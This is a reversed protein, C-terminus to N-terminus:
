PLVLVPRFSHTFSAKGNSGTFYFISSSDGGNCHGGRSFFTNHHCPFVSHGEYWSTGGISRSSTEYVADGFRSANKEYNPQNDDTVGKEYVDKMYNQTNNSVLSSGYNTLSDDGNNVYGAVYEWAGGNMDYIGYVNGTTSAEQGKTSTYDNTTGIDILANPNEGSSGTIYNGSNNIWIEKNKGYKSQALYICAGWESNKMLHSNLRTNYDRCKEFVASITINRWSNVGPQIKIVGSTGGTYNQYDEANAGADSQSAEFKAVWIGAKEGNYNFAPHVVYNDGVRVADAKETGEVVNGSTDVIGRSDSYGTVTRGDNALYEIKYAFRPIWVWMSGDSTKANAWKKLSTSYDYWDEDEITTTIWNSGNWKIPTMESGLKPTQVKSIVNNNTDIFKIDINGVNSRNIEAKIVKSISEKKNGVKDITLVHLYYNGIKTPTLTIIESNNKFTNTYKSEDEIGIANATTNLEWKCKGIDVGSENDVHTVTATITEGIQTSTTSLSITAARPTTGDKITVSEEQGHNIGDTLRAYVADNHNLGTVSEGTQWGDADIGNIQWEIYLNSAVNEGKTLTISATHSNPDWDPESAKIVGEKLGEGAGIIGETTLEVVKQSEGNENKAVVKLEYITESELGTVEATKEEVNEKIAKYSEEPEDLKKYYYSLTLNEGERIVTVEINISSSTRGTEKIEQIYPLLANDKGIYEVEADGNENIHIQFKYGEPVTIVYNGNDDLKEVDTEVNLIIGANKMKEWLDDIGITEDLTKDLSWDLCVIEIRDQYTAIIQMDKAQQAKSLIGNESFVTNITVGALILLVVITIVLAILTIGKQM